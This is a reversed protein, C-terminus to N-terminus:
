RREKADGGYLGHTQIYALVAPHLGEATGHARLQRRIETSSLPAPPMDLIVCRAGQQELKAKHARLRDLGGPERQGVCLTAQRFIAAPEVWDQVTLFMDAGMLLFLEDGPYAARLQELTRYTYSRGGQRIERDSVEFRPLEAAALRCMALRDEDPALDVARKHPPIHTPVLLIRDLRLQRVYAEAMRVHANHIPNFTGGYVGIRM